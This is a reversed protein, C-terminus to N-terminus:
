AAALPMVDLASRVANFTEDLGRVHAAYDGTSIAQAHRELHFASSSLRAFGFTSASGKLTHAETKIRDRDQGCDLQGMLRLRAETEALFVQLVAEVGDAGIEELLEAAAARDILPPLPAIDSPTADPSLSTQLGRGQLDESGESRQGQLDQAIRALKDVLLVKRIPKAIFDDM